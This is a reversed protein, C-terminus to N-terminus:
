YHIKFGLMELENRTADSRIHRVTWALVEERTPAVNAFTLEAAHVNEGDESVFELAVMSREVNSPDAAVIVVVNPAEEFVADMTLKGFFPETGDDWDEAGSYDQYTNTDHKLKLGGEREAILQDVMQFVAARLESTKM